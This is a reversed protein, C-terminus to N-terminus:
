CEKYNGDEVEDILDNEYECQHIPMGNGMCELFEKARKNM